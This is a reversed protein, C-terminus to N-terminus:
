ISLRYFKSSSKFGFKKYFGSANEGDQYTALELSWCGAGRAREIAKEVLARGIGGRRAKPDVVLEEIIGSRRGHLTTGFRVTLFGAPKKGGEAVWLETQEELVAALLRAFDQESVDDKPRLIKYLPFLPETDASTGRRIKVSPSAAKAV